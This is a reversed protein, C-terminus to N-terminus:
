FAHCQQGLTVEINIINIIKIFLPHEMLMTYDNKGVQM